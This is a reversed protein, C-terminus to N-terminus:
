PCGSLFVPLREGPHGVAVGLLDALASQPDAEHRVVVYDRTV